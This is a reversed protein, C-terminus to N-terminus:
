GLSELSGESESEVVGGGCGQGAWRAWPFWLRRKGSGFSLTLARCDPQHRRPPQLPPERGRGRGAVRPPQGAWWRRRERLLLLHRHGPGGTLLAPGTAGGAALHAQRRVGSSLVAQLTCPTLHLGPQRGTHGAAM